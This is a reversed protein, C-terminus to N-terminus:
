ATLSLRDPGPADLAFHAVQRYATRGRQVDSASAEGPPEPWWAFMRDEAGLTESPTGLFAATVHEGVDRGSIAQVVLNIGAFLLGLPGGYLLGGLLRPIAGLEDDSVARYATSVVPLHHLPNVIDLLDSFGLGDGDWAKAEGTPSAEPRPVPMQYHGAYALTGDLQM